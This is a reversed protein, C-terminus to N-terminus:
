LSTSLFRVKGDKNCSLHAYHVLRSTNSTKKREFIHLGDEAGVAVFGAYRSCTDAWVIWDDNTPHGGWLEALSDVRWPFLAVCLL